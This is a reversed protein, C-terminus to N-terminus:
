LEQAPQPDCYGCVQLFLTVMVEVHPTESHRKVEDDALYVKNIKEHRLEYDRDLIVTSYYGQM